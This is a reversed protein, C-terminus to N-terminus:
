QHMTREFFAVTGNKFLWRESPLATRWPFLRGITADDMETEELRKAGLVVGRPM